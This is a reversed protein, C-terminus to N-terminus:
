MAPMQQNMRKYVELWNTSIEIQADRLSEKGDCVQNHLYNEVQDKQHFGPKPEAPEPWLNAIDNSGGLELSILHDVEYQGKTHTMVGYAAYVKKKVSEPVNRVKKSYGPTCVEETTVDPFVTGPTCATDALANVSVCGETKTKEGPSRPTITISYNANVPTIQAQNKTSFSYYLGIILLFLTVFVVTTNRM